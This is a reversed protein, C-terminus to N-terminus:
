TQRFRVKEAPGLYKPGRSLTIDMVAKVRALVERLRVKTSHPGSPNDACFGIVSQGSKQALFVARQCHFPQSVVIYDDLGFVQKARFVSDLTSFGAYDLTIFEAPIGRAVLDAKITGPEDYDKRSNDGSVLIADVKGAQWLEVTANIRYTYFLNSRGHAYKGCGLLVAARRHPVDVASAYLRGKSFSGVYFDCATCILVLLMATALAWGARRKNFFRKGAAKAM